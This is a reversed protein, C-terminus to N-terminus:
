PFILLVLSILRWGKHIFLHIWKLNMFIAFWPYGTLTKRSTELLTRGDTCLILWCMWYVCSLQSTFDSTISLRNYRNLWRKLRRCQCSAQNTRLNLSKRLNPSSSLMIRKWEWHLRILSVVLFMDLVLIVHCDEGISTKGKENMSGRLVARKKRGQPVEPDSFLIFGIPVMEHNFRM